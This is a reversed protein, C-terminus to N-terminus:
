LALAVSLSKAGSPVAFPAFSFTAEHSISDAGEAFPTSVDVAVNVTTSANVVKWVYFITTRCTGTNGSRIINNSGSATNSFSVDDATLTVSCTITQDAPIQSDIAVTTTVTISGTRTLAGPAVSLSPRTTFVGTTPDLFGAIGPSPGAANSAVPLLAVGSILAAIAFPKM